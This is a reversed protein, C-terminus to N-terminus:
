AARVVKTIGNERLKREVFAVFQRRTMANVEVRRTSPLNDFDGLMFAIEAERAGNTRLDGGARVTAPRMRKAQLVEFATKPRRPRPTFLAFLRSGSANGHFLQLRSAPM